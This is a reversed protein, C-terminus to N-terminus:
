PYASRVDLAADNDVAVGQRHSHQSTKREGRSQLAFPGLLLNKDLELRQAVKVDAGLGDSRAHTENKQGREDRRRM